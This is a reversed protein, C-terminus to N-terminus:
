RRRCCPARPLRSKAAPTELHAYRGGLYRPCDLAHGAAIVMASLDEGDVYCTGVMRDYSRQGNLICSITKGKLLRELWRKAERGAETSTEPGDVGDFRVPTGGVVITDIDRVHIRSSSIEQASANFAFAIGVAFFAVLKTLVGHALRRRRAIPAYRSQTKTCHLL